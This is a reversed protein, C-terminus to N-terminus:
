DQMGNSRFAKPSIGVIKKFLRSFYNVDSFGMEIAIRSITMTTERLLTVSVLIRKTMVYETITKGSYSKFIRSLYSKDIFLLKAITQSQIDQTYNENIYEIIRNFREENQPININNSAIEHKELANRYLWTLITYLSGKISLGYGNKRQLYEKELATFLKLFEDNHPIYNKYLLKRTFIPLIYEKECLDLFKSSIMDKEFQITRSKYPAEAYLCAHTDMSNFIMFDGPSCTYSKDNCIYTPRGKEVYLIEFANHMHPIFVFGSKDMRFSHCIVMFDTGTM